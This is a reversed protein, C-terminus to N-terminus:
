QSKETYLQKKLSALEAFPGAETAETSKRQLGTLKQNCDDNEHYIALPLSLIIEDEILGLLDLTGATSLGIDLEDEALERDGKEEKVGLDDVVKVSFSSELEYAVGRLCRQCPLELVGALKGSLINQANEDQFFDLEMDIGSERVTDNETLYAKLRDLRSVPLSATLHVQRPFFKRVEITEPFPQQSM